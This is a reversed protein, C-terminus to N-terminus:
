GAAPRRSLDIETVAAPMGIHFGQAYDVGYRELLEITRSDGVFEAITRKGLGHAIESISKVVLQDTPNRALDRIFEGDIKLYDFPLHKLYYFSAFGSGFDDLAFECGLDAVQAAFRRAQDMNRIAATETIEFCLGRGDAGASRLEDAILAPLADDVISLPSVNVHLRLEHGDRQERALLRITSRAVWRDIRDILEMREAIALFAAPPILDGDEGLMRVLIEHRPHRDGNLALIPQAVLTFRDDALAQRIREGWTVRAQMREQREDVDGYYAARDRGAEKADYMAMDAEMLLEEASLDSTASFVAIGISATVPRPAGAASFSLESRVAELLEDAVLEAESETVEPLIVAFEDGGIRALVDTRRVRRALLAGVTAILEDGVSHGQSDNVYKFSDLDISLVAGSVKSRKARALERDLEERFRRRNLLGTLWDHDALYRLESEYRRREAIEGRLAGYLSANELSIVAQATILDLAALRQTTFTDAVLDNELCLLGRLERHALIPICLLSRVRRGAIYPDADFPKRTSADGIVLPERTRTVYNIATEPVLEPTPELPPDHVTVSVGTSTREATAAISTAHEGCLLLTGGRAGSHMIVTELLRELVREHTVEGSIAQSAKAVALADLTDDRTFGGKPALPFEQELAQVKATAGWERYCEIADRIHALARREHGEERDLRAASEHALAAVHPQRHRHAQVTALAFSEHADGLRGEARAVEAAALSAQAGFNGPCTSAWRELRQAYARLQELREERVQPDCGAIALAGFFAGDAQVRFGRLSRPLPMLRDSSRLAEVFEGGFVQAQLLHARFWTRTHPSPAELSAELEAQDLGPGTLVAVRETAGRLAAVLQRLSILTDAQAAFRARFALAEDLEREVGDLETGAAFEAVCLAWGCFGAGLLDGSQIGSAIGGRAIEAADRLERTWTLQGLLTCVFARQSLLAHRDVLALAIRALRDGDAYREDCSLEFGYAALGWPSAPFVGHELTLDVVLCALVRHLPPDLIYAHPGARALLDVAAALERDDAAPLELFTEIPRGGLREWMSQEVEDASDPHLSLPWGYTRLVEIAVELGKATVGATANLDLAIRACLTRELRTQAGATAESLLRAAEELHGGCLEADARERTLWFTLEHEHAWGDAGLLELGAACYESVADFASAARAREAALRNLRALELREQSTALASRGRDLQAVTEFLDAGGSLLARGIRLHLSPLSEPAIAAYAAERVRDHSFRYGDETRVLFRSRVAAEISRALQDGAGPSVRELLAADFTGGLCAATNLTRRLDPPAGKLRETLLGALNGSVPAREIASADWSWTQRDRDFRLLKAGRLEALLQNFFLPNGGTREYLLAQLPECVAADMDLADALLETLPAAELSGLRVTEVPTGSDRLRASLAAIPDSRSDDDRYVGVLLLWRLLRDGALQILLELSAADAWQLDDLLLVLPHEATAFVGAFARFASTFRRQAAISSLAEVEPQPGLVLDLQPVLDTLVRANRDVAAKLRERWAALQTERGALILAVLDGFGDAIPAYPVGLPSDEFKGSVLFGGASAVPGALEQVLASKGVGAEGAVLLVRPGHGDRVAAFGDLLLRRERERGYVKQPVSLRESHDRQGLEFPPITGAKSWADLCRELDHLLGGATQYRDDPDKELLRLVIREIMQPVAPDIARPRRPPMALHRHAWELPDDAEFPLEGTLHEFLVVGLAYLDSRADVPRQLRGTQEPALYPWLEARAQPTGAQAQSSKGRLWAPTIAGHVTVADHLEELSRTAAMADRLFCELQLVGGRSM